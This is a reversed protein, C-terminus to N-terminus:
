QNLSQKPQEVQIEVDVSICIIPLDHISKSGTWTYQDM